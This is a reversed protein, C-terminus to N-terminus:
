NVRTSDTDPRLTPSRNNVEHNNGASVIDELKVELDEKSNPKLLYNNSYPLFEYGHEAAL